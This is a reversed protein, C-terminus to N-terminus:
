GRISVGKKSETIESTPKENVTRLALELAHHYFGTAEVLWAEPEDGWFEDPKGWFAHAARVLAVDPDFFGSWPCTAARVTTCVEVADRESDCM